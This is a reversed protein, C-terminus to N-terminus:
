AGVTCAFKGRDTKQFRSNVGKTTIERAIASYLTAAPTKGGPSTWYGRAAMVEIMEQCTMATGAEVLVKAAADLASLKRESSSTTMPKKVKRRAKPGTATPTPGGATAEVAVTEAVATETAALPEVTPAAHSSETLPVDDAPESQSAEASPEPMPVLTEEQATAEEATAPIAPQEARPEATAPDDTDLFEIPRGALSDRNWTVQEGDGWKIKVSAGNAWVIRGAIGDDTCRVRSGIKLAPLNSSTTAKTNKKTAM